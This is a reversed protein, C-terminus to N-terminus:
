ETGFWKRCWRLPNWWREMRDPGKFGVLRTMLAVATRQANTLGDDDADDIPYAPMVVGILDKTEVPAILLCNAPANSLVRPVDRVNVDGVLYSEGCPEVIWVPRTTDGHTAVLHRARLEVEEDSLWGDAVASTIPRDNARVMFPRELRASEIPLRTPSRLRNSDTSCITEELSENPSGSRRARGREAISGEFRWGIPKEIVDGLDDRLAAYQFGDPHDGTKLWRCPRLLGDIQDVVAIDICEGGEVFRFGLEMLRDIFARFIDADVFGIRTLYEDSCMSNNPSEMWYARMGGPFKEVVTENRVIVNIAEILVPMLMEEQKENRGAV